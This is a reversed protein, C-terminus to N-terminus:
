SMNELAGFMKSIGIISELKIVNIFYKIYFSTEGHLDKKDESM